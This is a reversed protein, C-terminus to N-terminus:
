LLKGHGVLGVLAADLSAICTCVCAIVTRGGAQLLLVHLHHRAANGQVHVAGGDASLRRGVHGTAAAERLLHAHKAGVDAPGAAIFAGPVLVIVALLTRSRATATSILALVHGGHALVDLLQFIAFCIL